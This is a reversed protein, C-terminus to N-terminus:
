GTYGSLEGHLGQISWGGDVLITQGTVYSAESSALFAVVSAIEDPAAMRRLPVEEVIGAESLSGDRLAQEALRTKTFGPGVANARVGFAAGEVAMTRTLGVIAAKAASYAGRGAMGTVAAVSAISVIAGGGRGRMSRMAQGSCYYTGMLHIRVVLEWSTADLDETLSLRQIGANNVLVDVGGETREVDEFARAVDARDAVDCAIFRAGQVPEEADELDLYVGNAGSSVFRELVARGIGHAGGTVVTTLGDFGM